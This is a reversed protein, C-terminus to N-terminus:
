GEVATASGKRSKGSGGKASGGPILRRQLLCRELRLPDDLELGLELLHGLLQCDLLPGPLLELLDAAWLGHLLYLSDELM